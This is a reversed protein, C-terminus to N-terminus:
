SSQTASDYSWAWLLCGITRTRLARIQEPTIKLMDRHTLYVRELRESIRTQRLWLIMATVKHPLSAIM